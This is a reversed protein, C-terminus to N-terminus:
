ELTIVAYVRRDKSRVARAARSSTSTYEVQEVGWEGWEEATEERMVLDLVAHLEPKPRLWRLWVPWRTPALRFILSYPPGTNDASPNWLTWGAPVLAAVRVQSRGIPRSVYWVLEPRSAYWAAGAM